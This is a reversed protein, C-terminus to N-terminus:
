HYWWLEIPRIDDRTYFDNRGPGANGDRYAKTAYLLEALREETINEAPIVIGPVPGNGYVQRVIGLDQAIVDATIQAAPSRQSNLERLYKRQLRRWYRLSFGYRREFRLARVQYETLGEPGFPAHGRATAQSMGRGYNRQMRLAYSRSTTYTGRYPNLYAPQGAPLIIEPAAPSVGSCWTMM